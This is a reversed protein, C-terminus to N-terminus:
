PLVVLTLDDCQLAGMAGTNDVNVVVRVRTAGVPTVAEVSIQKWEVDCDKIAQREEGLLLKADADWFELKIEQTRAVWEPDCYFWGSFRYRAGPAAPHEQWIGGYHSSGAWLGRVTMLHEGDFARWGERTASGWADGHQDPQGMKWYLADNFGAGAEEFSGNRLLNGGDAHVMGATVMAVMVGFM